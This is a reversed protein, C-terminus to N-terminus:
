FTNNGVIIGYLQRKAYKELGFIIIISGCMINYLTSLSECQNETIAKCCSYIITRYYYESYCM